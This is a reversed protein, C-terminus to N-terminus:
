SASAKKECCMYACGKAYEDAKQQTAHEDFIEQTMEVPFDSLKVCSNAIDGHFMIHIADSDETADYETYFLVKGHPTDFIRCWDKIDETKQEAAM